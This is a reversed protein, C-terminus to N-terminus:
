LGGSIPILLLVIGSSSTLTGLWDVKKVSEAFSTTPPKSPLYFFSLVFTLASCPSLMWFFARWTTKSSIAAALFPGIVNGLGVMSGTIGQYKGRQELTVVDSIIIMSLNITGGSGIGAIARCIYFMTANQSLGCLLDALGLMAIATLFVTKRGVIDSLRGYLMSFTTNALLSSTGAWSITDGADLDAAITPLITSIGNQDIFNILLTVSLICFVAILQRRPLINVQDHLSQEARAIDSQRTM